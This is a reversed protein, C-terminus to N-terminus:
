ENWMAVFGTCLPTEAVWDYTASLTADKTASVTLIRSNEDYSWSASGTSATVVVTSEKASHILVFMQTSGTATGLAQTFTGSPKRLVVRMASVGKPDTGTPLSYTFETSQQNTDDYTQTTGKTMDMWSEAEWGHSYSAFITVGSPATTSVQSVQTNYDFDFVETSGHWLHLTNHNIGSDVATAGPPKLDITQRSGTGIGINIRDRLKPTARMSVQSAILADQLTQHKVTIRGARMGVGDFDETITILDATEGSVPASNTRYTAVVKNVTASGVGVTTVSYVSQFKIATAQQRRAATLSMYDSWAGNQQLSVTVIASAGGTATVTATLDVIEVSDSISLTIPASVETRSTQSSGSIGNIAMSLSPYSTADGPATLAIAPYISKGVFAAIGTIANLEAVTNGESLLSDATLTQTSLASLTAAGPGVLKYWTGDVKFAVRIDTGAPVSSTLTFGTVSSMATCDLATTSYTLEKKTLVFEDTGYRVTNTTLM